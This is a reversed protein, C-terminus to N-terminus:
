RYRDYHLRARRVDALGARYRAREDPLWLHPHTSQAHIPTSLHLAACLPSLSPKRSSASSSLSRWPNTKSTLHGDARFAAAFTQGNMKVSAFRGDATWDFLYSGPSSGYEPVVTGTAPLDYLAKRRLTTDDYSQGLTSLTETATFVQGTLSGLEVQQRTTRAQKDHTYSIRVATSDQATSTKEILSTILSRGDGYDYCREINGESGQAGQGGTCSYSSPRSWIAHVFIRV